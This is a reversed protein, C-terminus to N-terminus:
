EDDEDGTFLTKLAMEGLGRMQELLDQTRRAVQQMGSVDM